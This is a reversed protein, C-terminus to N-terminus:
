SNTIEVEEEPAVLIDLVVVEIDDALVEREKARDKFGLKEFEKALERESKALIEAIQMMKEEGVGPEKNIARRLAGLARLREKYGQLEEIIEQNEPDLKLKIECEKIVITYGRVDAKLSDFSVIIETTNSKEKSM